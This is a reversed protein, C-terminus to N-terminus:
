QSKGLTEKIRARGEPTKLWDAYLKTWNRYLFDRERQMRSQEASIRKSLSRISRRLLPEDFAFDCGESERISHFGEHISRASGVDLGKETTSVPALVTMAGVGGSGSFVFSPNFSPRPFSCELSVRYWEGLYAASAMGPGIVAIGNADMLDGLRAHGSYFFPKRQNIYLLDLSIPGNCAKEAVLAAKAVSESAALKMFHDYLYAGCRGARLESVVEESAQTGLQTRLYERGSGGEKWANVFSDVDVQRVAVSVRPVIPGTQAIVVRQSMLVCASLICVSLAQFRRLKKYM